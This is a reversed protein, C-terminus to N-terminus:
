IVGDFLGQQAKGYRRRVAAVVRELIPSMGDSHTLEFSLLLGDGGKHNGDETLNDRLSRAIAEALLPPVANGIQQLRESKSGTFRFTDPFSQLRACERLTLARHETPHLYENQAGGTIAKCPESGQLRRLGAPAGGRRHSPVGDRVRRSARRRYSAHWMDQPLDRMRQGPSLAMARRADIESLPVYSHDGTDNVTAPPLGVLAESLSPTLPLAAFAQAGPAGWASHTPAPFKPAWGLGGIAIIRKRHQPVGYNAANVKRVHVQYGAAIVPDLLDFVFRGEDSTAFGEVNEFVFAPPRRCAVMTAFTGVLTNRHDGVRRAGASSFGQCPPGGVIVSAVPLDLDPTIPLAAVHNGFNAQYTKAAEVWSDAAFVPRFGARVFGLSMGGAGCFLDIVTPEARVAGNHRPSHGLEM